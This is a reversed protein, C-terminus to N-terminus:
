SCFSEGRGKRKKPTEEKEQSGSMDGFIPLSIGPPESLEANDANLLNSSANPKKGRKKPIDEQNLMQSERERRRKEKEIQLAVLQLQKNAYEEEEMMKEMEKEDMEELNKNIEEIPNPENLPEDTKSNEDTKTSQEEPKKANPDIVPLVKVKPIKLPPRDEESESQDEEEDDDSNKENDNDEQEQELAEDENVVYEDESEIVRSRNKKM